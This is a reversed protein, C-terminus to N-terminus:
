SAERLARRREIEGKLIEVIAERDHIRLTFGSTELRITISVDSADPDDQWRELLANFAAEPLTRAPQGLFRSSRM